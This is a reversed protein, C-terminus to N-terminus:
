FFALTRIEISERPPANPRSTPDDFATHATWRARGDKESDFVKFVIAEERRMHPFYFWEHDPNYRVSYTQGVRHVYRRETIIFDDFSLTRADALALPFTEVPLRIPRWVQVVAFRRKLLEDAEDPLLDHVRKPASWETYDNHVRPVVERIKKQERLGEDATRLTHDFVVVRKAGSQAKVLAEMEPFYIGRVQAEDYFDGVKTDHRNFTFGERDLVLDKALPRGNRIVMRRPDLKGGRMDATGGPGAETVIKEGTDALYNLTAEIAPLTESPRAELVQDM